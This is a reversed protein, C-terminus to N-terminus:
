IIRALENRGPEWKTSHKEGCHVPVSLELSRLMESHFHWVKEGVSQRPASALRLDETRLNGIM